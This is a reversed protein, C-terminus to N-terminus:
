RGVWSWKNSTPSIQDYIFKMSSFLLAIAISSSQRKKEIDIGLKAQDVIYQIEEGDIKIQFQHKRWQLPIDPNSLAEELEERTTIPQDYPDLRPMKSSHVMRNRLNRLAHMDLFIEDTILKARKLAAISHNIDLNDLLLEAAKFNTSIDDGRLSIQNYEFSGSIKTYWLIFECNARFLTEGALIVSSRYYGNELTEYTELMMQLIDSRFGGDISKQYIEIILEKPWPIMEDV